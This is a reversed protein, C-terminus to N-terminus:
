RKKLPSGFRKFLSHDFIHEPKQQHSDRSSQKTMELQTDMYHSCSSINPVVTIVESNLSNKAKNRVLVLISKRKLAGFDFSM